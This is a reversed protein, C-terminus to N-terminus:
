QQLPSQMTGCMGPGPAYVADFYAETMERFASYHGQEGFHRLLEPVPPEIVTLSLVWRLRRQAAWRIAWWTCQDQWM